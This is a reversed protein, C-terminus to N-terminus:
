QLSNGSTIKRLQPHRRTNKQQNGGENDCADVFAQYGEDPEFDLQRFGTILEMQRFDTEGWWQKVRDPISNKNATANM